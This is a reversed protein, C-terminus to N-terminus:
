YFPNEINKNFINVSYEHEDDSFDLDSVNFQEKIVSQVERNISNLINFYLKENM